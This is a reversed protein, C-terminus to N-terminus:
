STNRECNIFSIITLSINCMNRYLGNIFHKKWMSCGSTRRGCRRPARQSRGAVSGPGRRPERRCRPVSWPPAWPSPPRGSPIRRRCTTGRLPITCPRSPLTLRQVRFFFWRSKINTSAVYNPPIYSAMHHNPISHSYVYYPPSQHDNKHLFCIAVILIYPVMKEGLFLVKKGEVINKQFMFKQSCLYHHGSIYEPCYVCWKM